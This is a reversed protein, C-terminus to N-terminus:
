FFISCFSVAAPDDLITQRDISTDPPQPQAPYYYQYFQQDVDDVINRSFFVDTLLYDKGELLIHCNQQKFGFTWLLWFKGLTQHEYQYPHEAEDAKTLIIAMSIVCTWLAAIKTM